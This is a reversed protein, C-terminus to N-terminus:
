GPAWAPRRGPHALFPLENLIAARVWNARPEFVPAKRRRMRALQRGSPCARLFVRHFDDFFDHFIASFPPKESPRFRWKATSPASPALDCVALRGSRVDTSDPQMSGGKAGGIPLPAGNKVSQPISRCTYSRRSKVIASIKDRANPLGRPGHRCFPHLIFSSPHVPFFRLALFLGLTKNM